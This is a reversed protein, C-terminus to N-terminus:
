ISAFIKEYINGNPIPPYGGHTLEKGNVKFIRTSDSKPFISGSKVDPYLKENYQIQKCFYRIFIKLDTATTLWNIYGSDGNMIRCFLNTDSIRGDELLGKAIHKLQEDTWEHNFPKRYYPKNEKEAIKMKLINIATSISFGISLHTRARMKKYDPVSIIEQTIKNRYERYPIDWGNEIFISHSSKDIEELFTLHYYCDVSQLVIKTKNLDFGGTITELYTYIEIESLDLDYKYRQASNLKEIAEKICDSYQGQEIYNQMIDRLEEKTGSYTIIDFPPSTNKFKIEHVMERGTIVDLFDQLTIDLYNNAM